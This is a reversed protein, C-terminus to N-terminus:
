GAVSLVQGRKELRQRALFAAGAIPAVEKLQTPVIQIKEVDRKSLFKERAQDRIPGVFAEGLREAIGGGFVVVEPDLANVMNATFTALARQARQFVKVMVPDQRELSWAIVGSSIVTRGKKEMRELVKSKMGKKILQRVDREMSTRSALAEICGINGCPCQPGKRVVISHGIEGAVGRSGQHLRGNIIIGGGIGTGVWVGIMTQTGRGVGYAHEGLVAVRVDNDLFIPLGTRAELLAALPVNLWRLNPAKDVIGAEINVGGPVGISVAAVPTGPDLAARIRDIMGVLRNIVADAGDQAHTLERQVHTVAGAEDVAGALIKTGGLDIGIVIGSAAM